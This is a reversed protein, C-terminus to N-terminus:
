CLILDLGLNMNKCFNELSLYSRFLNVEFFFFKLFQWTEILNLNIFTKSM